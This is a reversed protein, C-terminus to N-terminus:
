DSDSPLVTRLWAHLRAQDLPKRMLTRIGQALVEAEDLQESFGTYLAIPLDARAALLRRALQLGTLRPMCQDLIVLDWAYPDNLLQESAQEADCWLGVDLGWQSLREAMFEAVIGEDDVVAVRGRLRAQQGDQLPCSSGASEQTAAQVLPPILM